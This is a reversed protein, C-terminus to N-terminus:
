FLFNVGINLENNMTQKSEDLFERDFLHNKYDLNITMWDTRVVRYSLGLLLSTASNGAFDVNGLGGLLYIASDYKGSSQFFSRGSALKYGAALTNYTFDYDDEALFNADAITEFSARSVESTGLQAQALWKSNIHYSFSIGAVSNTNFDEASLMGFFIGAEFHETDIRAPKAADVQKDPIVVRVPNDDVDDESQALVPLCFSSITLTLTILSLQTTKSYNM